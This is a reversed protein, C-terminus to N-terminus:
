GTAWRGSGRRGSEAILFQEATAVLAGLDAPCPAQIHTIVDSLSAPEALHSPHNKQDYFMRLRDERQRELLEIAHAEDPTHPATREDAGAGEFAALLDDPLPEFFSDPVVLGPDTGVPRSETLPKPLPRIEAVPVNRRCVVVVDGREVADLYQSLRAKAEALNIKIM